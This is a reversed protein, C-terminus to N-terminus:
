RGTAHMSYCAHIKYYCSWLLYMYNYLYYYYIHVQICYAYMPQIAVSLNKTKRLNLKKLISEWNKM